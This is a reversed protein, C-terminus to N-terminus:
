KSMEKYSSLCAEKSIDCEIEYINIINVFKTVLDLLKDLKNVNKPIITQRIIKKIAEEEGIKRIKNSKGQKIFCLAKLPITVNKSIDNKGSWPNGCVDFGTGNFHYIPKDDNIIFSDKFEKLYLSAHTSKGQGSDGSFSYALSNVAVSSSHIMISNYDLMTRSFVHGSYMYEALEESCNLSKSAKLVDEDKIDIVFDFSDSEIVYPKIRNNLMDYKVNKVLIKVKNIEIIYDMKHIEEIEFLPTLKRM